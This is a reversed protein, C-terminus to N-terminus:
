FVNLFFLIYKGWVFPFRWMAFIAWTLGRVFLWADIVVWLLCFCATFACVPKPVPFTMQSRSQFQVGEYFLWWWVNSLILLIERNTDWPKLLALQPATNIKSLSRLVPLLEFALPRVWTIVMRDIQRCNWFVVNAGKIIVVSATVHNISILNNPETNKLLNCARKSSLSFLVSSFASRYPKQSVM